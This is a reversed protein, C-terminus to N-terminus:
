HKEAHRHRRPARHHNDHQSRTDPRRTYDYYHSRDKSHPYSDNSRSRGRGNSEYRGHRTPQHRDIYSHRPDSTSYEYAQHDNRPRREDDYYYSRRDIDRRHRHAESRNWPDDRGDQWGSSPRDLRARHDSVHRRPSREQRSEHAHSSRTERRMEQEGPYDHYSRDRLQGENRHRAHERSADKRGDRHERAHPIHKSHIEGGYRHGDYIVREDRRRPPSRSRKRKRKHAIGEFWESNSTSQDGSSRQANHIGRPPRSHSQGVDGEWDESKFMSRELAVNATSPVRPPPSNISARETIPLTTMAKLSSKRQMAQTDNGLPTLDAASARAALDSRHYPLEKYIRNALAVGRDEIERKDITLAEPEDHTHSQQEQVNTDQRNDPTYSDQARFEAQWDKALALARAGMELRTQPSPVGGAPLEAEAAVEAAASRNPMEIVGPDRNAQSTSLLSTPQMPSFDPAVSLEKAAHTDSAVVPNYDTHGTATGPTGSMLAIRSESSAPAIDLVSGFVHTASSDSQIPGAPLGFRRRKGLPELNAASAKPGCGM